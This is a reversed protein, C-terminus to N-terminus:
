LCGSGQSYHLRALAARKLAGRSAGEELERQKIPNVLLTPDKRMRATRLDLAM